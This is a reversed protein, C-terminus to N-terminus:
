GSGESGTAADGMQEPRRNGGLVDGRLDDMGAIEFAVPESGRVGTAHAGFQEHGGVAHGDRDLVAVDALM